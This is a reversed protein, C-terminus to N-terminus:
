EVPTLTGSQPTPGGNQQRVLSIFAEEMRPRTVRVGRAGLGNAGLAAEIGPLRMSADDVFIHLLEGYTQTELVGARSNVV